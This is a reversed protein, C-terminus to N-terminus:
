HLRPCSFASLPCLSIATCFLWGVPPYSEFLPEFIDHTASDESFVLTKRSWRDFIKRRVFNRYHSLLRDDQRRQIATDLLSSTTDPASARRSKNHQQSVSTSSSPSVSAFSALPVAKPTSYRSNAPWPPLRRTNDEFKSLIVIDPDQAVDVSPTPSRLRKATGESRHLGSSVETTPNIEKVGDSREELGAFSSPNVVIHYTGPAKLEAKRERDEDNTLSAFPPFTDEEALQPPSIEVSRASSAAVVTVSSSGRSLIHPFKRDWVFSGM